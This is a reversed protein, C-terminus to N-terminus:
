NYRRLYAQDARNITDFIRQEEDNSNELEILVIVKKTNDFISNFLHNIEDVSKGNLYERYYKYCKFFTTQIKVLILYTLQLNM